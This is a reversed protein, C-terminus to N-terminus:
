RTPTPTEGTSTGGRDPSAPDPLRATRRAPQPADPDDDCTISLSSTCAASAPPQATAPPRGPIRLRVARFSCGDQAVEEWDLQIRNGARLTRYGDHDIHSYHVWCGGPTETSDLVGWGETDHWFRVAADVTM